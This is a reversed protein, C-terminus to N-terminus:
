RARRPAGPRARGRGAGIRSRRTAPVRAPRGRCAGSGAGAPRGGSAPRRGAGRPPGAARGPGGGGGAGGGGGGGRGGGGGGGAGRGGGGGLAGPRPGQGRQGREPPPGGGQLVPLAVDDRGDGADRRAGRDGGPDGVAADVRGRGGGLRDARGAARVAVVRPGGCGVGGLLAM